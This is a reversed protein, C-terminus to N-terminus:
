VVVAADPEAVPVEPRLMARVVGAAVPDAPLPAIPPGGALTEGVVAALDAVPTAPDV